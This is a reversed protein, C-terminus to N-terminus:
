FVNENWPSDAVRLDTFDGATSTVPFSGRGDPTAAM